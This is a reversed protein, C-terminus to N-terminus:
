RRNVDGRREFAPYTKCNCSFTDFPWGAPPPRLMQCDAAHAFITVDDCACQVDADHHHCPDDSCVFRGCDHCLACLSM